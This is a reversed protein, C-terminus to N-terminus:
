RGVPTRSPRGDASARPAPVYPTTERRRAEHGGGRALAVFVAATVLSLLLWVGLVLLVTM